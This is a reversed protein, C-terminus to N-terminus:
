ATVQLAHRQVDLCLSLMLRDESGLNERDLFVDLLGVAIGAKASRGEATLAPLRSIKDRLAVEQKGLAILRADVEAPIDVTDGYSASISESLDNLGNLEAALALLDTDDGAPASPQHPSDGQINDLATEPKAWGALAIGALGTAGFASFAERRTTYRKTAM